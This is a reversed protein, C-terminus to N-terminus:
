KFQAISKALTATNLIKIQIIEHLSCLKVLYCRYPQEEEYSPALIRIGM